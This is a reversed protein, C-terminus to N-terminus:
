NGSAELDYWEKYIMLIPKYKSTTPNFYESLHQNEVLNKIETSYTKRFRVKDIKNDLYKACADDYQNLMSQTMSHLTTEHINLVEEEEETLTGKRKKVTLPAFTISLTEINNKANEIANRIELEVSAHQVSLASSSAKISKFLAVISIIISITALAISVIDKTDM